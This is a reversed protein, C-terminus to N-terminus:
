ITPRILIFFITLGPLVANTSQQNSRSDDITDGNDPGSHQTMMASTNVDNDGRCGFDNANASLLQITTM